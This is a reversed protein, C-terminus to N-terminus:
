PFKSMVECACPVLMGVVLGVASGASASSSKYALGQRETPGEWASSM